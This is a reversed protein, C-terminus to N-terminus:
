LNCIIAFHTRDRLLLVVSNLCCYLLQNRSSNANTFIFSVISQHHNRVQLVDQDDVRVERQRSHGM